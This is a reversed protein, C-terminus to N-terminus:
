IIIGHSVSPTDNDNFLFRVASGPHVIGLEFSLIEVHANSFREQQISCQRKAKQVIVIGTPTFANSPKNPVFDLELELHFSDM